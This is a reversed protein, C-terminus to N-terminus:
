ESKKAFKRLRENWIPIQKQYNMSDERIRKYCNRSLTARLDYDGALKEIARALDDHAGNKIYIATDKAQWELGGGGPLISPVGFAM